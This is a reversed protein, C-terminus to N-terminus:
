NKKFSNKNNKSIKIVFDRTLIYETYVLSYNFNLLYDEHIIVYYYLGDYSFVEIETSLIMQNM